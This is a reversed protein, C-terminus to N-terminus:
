VEVFYVDEEEGTRSSRGSIHTTAAAAAAAARRKGSHLQKNNCYPLVFFRKPWSLLRNNAKKSTTTTPVRRQVIMMNGLFQKKSTIPHLQQLQQQQQQQQPSSSVSSSEDLLRTCISELTAHMQHITWRRSLNGDWGGQLLDQLAAEMVGGHVAGPCPRRTSITSTKIIIRSTPIKPRLGQEFVKEVFDKETTLKAYPRTCTLMEWVMLAFSYVDCQENYPLGMAVEPAM